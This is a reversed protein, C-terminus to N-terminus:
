KISKKMFDLIAGKQLGKFVHVLNIDGGHRFDTDSSMWDRQPIHKYENAQPWIAKEILGEQKLADMKEMIADAEYRMQCCPCLEQSQLGNCFKSHKKESSPSISVPIAIRSNILIFTDQRCGNVKIIECNSLSEYGNAKKWLTAEDIEQMSLQVYNDALAEEAERIAEEESFMESSLVKDRPSMEEGDEKGGRFDLDRGLVKELKAKLISIDKVKSKVLDSTKSLDSEVNRGDTKALFKHFDLLSLEAVSTERIERLEDKKDKFTDLNKQALIYALKLENLIEVIEKQRTLLNQRSASLSEGEAKLLEIPSPQKEIKPEMVSPATETAEVTGPVIVPKVESDSGANRGFFKEFMLKCNSDM